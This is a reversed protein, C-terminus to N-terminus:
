AKEKNNMITMKFSKGVGTMRTEGGTSIATLFDKVQLLLLVCVTSM